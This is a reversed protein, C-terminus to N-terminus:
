KIRLYRNSNRLVCLEIHIEFSRVILIMSIININITYKGSFM